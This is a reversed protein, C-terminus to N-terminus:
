KNRGGIYEVIAEHVYGNSAIMSLRNIVNCELALKNGTEDTVTGGAEELILKGAAVDILRLSNRVDVFADFKGSAVYCLELAVSGLLRIRRIKRALGVTYEVNKRYGYLSACIEGLNNNESVHIRKGNFYAGKGAIAYYTDNNALNRVYGFGIGSLDLSGIAISISYFPIGMAVNYTGDLPDLAVTIEPNDGVILEGLEESVIRMPIGSSEFVGIIAKESVDDILRTPTGDAGMYVKRYAESTGVLSTIAEIAKESAKECLDLYDIKNSM